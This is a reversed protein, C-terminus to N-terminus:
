ADIFSSVAQSRLPMLVALLSILSALALFQLLVCFGCRFRFNGAGSCPQIPGIKLENKVFDASAEAVEL